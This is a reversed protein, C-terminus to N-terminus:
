PKIEKRKQAKQMLNPNDGMKHKKYVQFRSPVKKFEPWNNNSLDIDATERYPDIVVGKVV